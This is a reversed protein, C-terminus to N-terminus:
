KKFAIWLENYQLFLIVDNIVGLLLIATRVCNVIVTNRFTRVRIHIVIYHISVTCHHM